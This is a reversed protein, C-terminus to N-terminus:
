AGADSARRGPRKVARSRGRGGAPPSVNMQPDGREHVRGAVEDDTAASRDRVDSDLPERWRTAVAVSWAPLPPVQIAQAPVSLPLFRFRGVTSRGEAHGRGRQGGVVVATSPAGHSCGAPNQIQHGQTTLRRPGAGYIRSGFIDHLRPSICLSTNLHFRDHHRVLRRSRGPHRQHLPGLRFRRYVVDNNLNMRRSEDWQAPTARSRSRDGRGHGFM